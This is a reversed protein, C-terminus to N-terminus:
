RPRRFTVVYYDIVSQKQGFLSGLCGPNTVVGVTDVRYFEWGQEAQKNALSQLYFAAENGRASRADVSIAPPIQVMRYEYGMGSEQIPAVAQHQRVMPVAPQQQGPELCATTTEVAQPPPTGVVRLASQGLAITDGVQLVCSDAMHGNVLVGNTSGLDELCWGQANVTLVAHERSVSSDRTLAIGCAPDRGVTIRATRLVHVEGTHPGATVELRDVLPIGHSTM